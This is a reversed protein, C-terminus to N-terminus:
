LLAFLAELPVRWLCCSYRCSRSCRHSKSSLVRSVANLSSPFVRLSSLLSSFRGFFRSLQIRFSLKVRLLVATFNIEDCVPFFSPPPPRLDFSFSLALPRPTSPLPSSASRRRFVVSSQVRRCPPAVKNGTGPNMGRSPDAVQLPLVTLTTLLLSPRFLKARSSASRVQQTPNRRLIQDVPHM